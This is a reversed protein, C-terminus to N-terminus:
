TEGDASAVDEQGCYDIGEQAHTKFMNSIDLKATRWSGDGWITLYLTRGDRLEEIMSSGFPADAAFFDNNQVDRGNWQAARPAGRDVWWAVDYGHEAPPVDTILSVRRADRSCFMGFRVLNETNSTPSVGEVLKMDKVVHAWGDSPDYRYNFGWLVGSRERPREWDAPMEPATLASPPLGFEPAPVSVTLGFTESIWTPQDDGLSPVTASWSSIPTQVWVGNTFQQFELSTTGDENIEAAVRASIEQEPEEAGVVALAGVAAVAVLLGIRGGLSRLSM